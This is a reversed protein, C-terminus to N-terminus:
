EVQSGRWSYVLIRDIFVDINTAAGRNQAFAWPTLKTTETVFNTQWGSEYNLRVQTIKSDTTNYGAAHLFKAAGDERLAVGWWEQALAATPAIAAELTTAAVTAKVGLGEWTDTDDTDIAWVVANDANFTPTAKVNVAGADTGSVVDTWGLEIKAPKSAAALTESSTIGFWVVPAMQATWHLGLSLDSRADDATGADLVIAGGQLGASIAAAASGVGNATSQYGGHLTDGLFDDDWKVIDLVPGGISATDIRLNRDQFGRALRRFGHLFNLSSNPVAM